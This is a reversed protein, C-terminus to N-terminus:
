RRRKRRASELVQRSSNLRQIKQNRSRLAGIDDLDPQQGRIERLLKEIEFGLKDIQAPSFRALSRETLMIHGNGIDRAMAWASGGPFGSMHSAHYVGDRAIRM